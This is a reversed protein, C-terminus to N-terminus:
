AVGRLVSDAAVPGSADKAARAGAQANELFERRALGARRAEQIQRVEYASRKWSKPVGMSEGIGRSIDNLSYHDWVGPDMEALPSLLAVLNPLKQLEQYKIALALPSILELQYDYEGLTEGHLQWGHIGLEWETMLELCVRVLPAFLERQQRGVVPIALDYDKQLVTAVEYATKHGSDALTQFIQAFYCQAVQNGYYEVLYQALRHDTQLQMLQPHGLDGAGMRGVIVAGPATSMPHFAGDDPWLSPPNMAKAAYKLVVEMFKDMCRISPYAMDSPGMGWDMGTPKWFRSIIYRM